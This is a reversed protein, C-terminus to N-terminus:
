ILCEFEEMEEEEEEECDEIRTEYDPVFALIVSEGRLVHSEVRHNGDVNDYKDGFVDGLIIPPYTELSMSAYKQIDEEFIEYDGRSIKEIPIEQLTYVGFNKIREVLNGESFDIHRPHIWRVLEALEWCTVRKGIERMSQIYAREAKEMEEEHQRDYEEKAVKGYKFGTSECDMCPCNPSISYDRGSGNCWKCKELSIQTM